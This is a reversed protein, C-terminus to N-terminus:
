ETATNQNGDPNNSNEYTQNIIYKFDEIKHHANAAHIPTFANKHEEFVFIVRKWNSLEDFKIRAEDGYCIHNPDGYLLWAPPPENSASFIKLTKNEKMNQQPNEIFDDSECCPSVMADEDGEDENISQLENFPKGCQNCTFKM